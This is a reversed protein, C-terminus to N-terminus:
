EEKGKISNSAEEMAEGIQQGKAKFVGIVFRWLWKLVDVVKVEIGYKVYFVHGVISAIEALCGLLLVFAAVYFHGGWGLPETIAMGMFAGILWYTSYDIFKSVTRRIARSKRWKYKEMLVRDGIREAEHYRKMSDSHGWWFDALILIISFLIMYRLEFAVSIMEGGFAAWVVGKNGLNSDMGM